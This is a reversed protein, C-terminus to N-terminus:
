LDNLIYLNGREGRDSAIVFSSQPVTEIPLPNLPPPQLWKFNQRHEGEGWGEGM